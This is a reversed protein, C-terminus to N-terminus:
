AGKFGSASAKTSAGTTVNVIFLATNATPQKLPAPFTIAAGGYVAAAPIAYFATGGSGDQLHLDTGVTAHANSITIQTIYNFLGAGPAAILQTSTTATMATTITGSILNEPLAYPFTVQRGSKDYISDVRVDNAVSAIDSTRARGGTKLPNGADATGSAVNGTILLNGKTDSAIPTYDGDASNLVTQAVNSVALSMVGTDGSAHVADEAKGLSTATVGPVVSTVTSSTLLSAAASQTVTLRGDTFPTTSLRAFAQVGTTTGTIGTSIRARVYRWVIPGKFYRNTAAVITYISAPIATVNAEDVLFFPTFNTNDNSGEFTIAGATVTGAAPVVQLSISRYAIGTTGLTDYSGSGASALLINNNLATQSGQGTVLVDVFNVSPLTVPFASQDSSIVM